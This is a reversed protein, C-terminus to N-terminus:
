EEGLEGLDGMIGKLAANFETRRLERWADTDSPDGDFSWKVVFKSLNEIIGSLSANESAGLMGELYGIPMDSDYDLTGKDTTVTRIAASM